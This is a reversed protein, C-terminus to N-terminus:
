WDLRVRRWGTEYDPSTDCLKWNGSKGDPPPALPSSRWGHILDVDGPVLPCKGDRTLVHDIVLRPVAGSTTRATV